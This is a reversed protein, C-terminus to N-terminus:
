ASDDIIDDDESAPSAVLPPPGGSSIIAEPQLLPTTYPTDLDADYAAMIKDWAPVHPCQIYSPNPCLPSCERARACAGANQGDQRADAPACLAAVHM